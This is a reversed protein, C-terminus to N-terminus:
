SPDGPFVLVREDSATGQPDLPTLVVPDGPYDDWQPRDVVDLQTGHHIGYRPIYGIQIAFMAHISDTFGTETIKRFGARLRLTGRETLDFDEINNALSNSISRGRDDTRELLQALPGGIGDFRRFKSPTLVQANGPPKHSM